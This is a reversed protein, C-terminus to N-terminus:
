RAWLAVMAKIPVMYFGIAVILCMIVFLFTARPYRWSLLAQFREGQTDGVMTQIRGAVSSMRDHRMRVLELDQSTPFSDFEEDLEDPYMNEADSLRTDVHPPYWPKTVFYANTTGGKGEKLKMPTLMTAGTIGMELVGIHPKWLHNATPRLHSSHTTAEDVVHYGGYLSARAEDLPCLRTKGGGKSPPWRFLSSAWSRKGTQGLRDKISVTLYDEFPEPVVFILDENWFPYSIARVLSSDKEGLVIDRAETVSVRLYWLKPSLYVKSKISSLGDIDLNAVKSHWEEAFVEDAEAIVESSGFVPLDNAKVIRVYLYQMQEVLDYTSSTKDKHLAEVWILALRRSPFCAQSMQTFGWIGRGGGGSGSGPVVLKVDSKTPRKNKASGSSIPSSKAEIWWGFGCQQQKGGNIAPKPVRQNEFEVEVFLSSSGEGDKPILSHAAVVEVVKNSSNM